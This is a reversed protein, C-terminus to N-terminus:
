HLVIHLGKPPLPPSIFNYAGINWSLGRLSGALDTTFFTKLSFGLGVIPAGPFLQFDEAQPNIVTLAMQNSTLAVSHSGEGSYGWTGQYANYDSGIVVGKLINVQNGIGNSNNGWVLNNTFGVPANTTGVNLGYSICNYITNNFILVTDQSQAIKIGCPNYGNTGYLGGGTLNVIVNNYIQLGQVVGWGNAVSIGADSVGLCDHIYNNRIIRVQNAGNTLGQMVIARTGNDNPDNIAYINNGEVTLYDIGGKIDIGDGQGGGSGPQGNYATRYITNGQVWVHSHSPYGAGVDYWNTFMGGGGLYIAEGFTDHIANTRIIINTFPPTWATSGNHNADATSCLLVTPGKTSGPLASVDCLEVIWNDGAIAIGKDSLVGVRFGHITVLSRKLHFDDEAGVWQVNALNTPNTEAVWSPSTESANYFSKGDLTLLYTGFATAPVGTLDVGTNTTQQRSNFYITVPGNSLTSAITTWTVNHFNTLPQAATGCSVGQWDADVYFYRTPVANTQAAASHAFFACCFAVCFFFGPSRISPISNGNSAFSNIPLMYSRMSKTMAFKIGCIPKACNSAHRHLGLSYVKVNSLQNLALSDQISAFSTPNPEFTVVRGGSGAVRAFFLTFVGQYGDVDFITMGEFSLTKLFKVEKKM